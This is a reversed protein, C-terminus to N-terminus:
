ARNEVSLCPSAEISSCTRIQAAQHRITAPLDGVGIRIGPQGACGVQTRVILAQQGVGPAPKEIHHHGLALDLFQM